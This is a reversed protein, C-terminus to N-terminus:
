KLLGGKKMLDKTLGEKDELWSSYDAGALFAPKLANDAIYKKWEPTETVKRFLDVYWQQAEKSVGPPMFIGRLMLYSMDFGTAEKMTTIERWEPLEIRARDVVALPRLRGAKWHGVAESPNNV